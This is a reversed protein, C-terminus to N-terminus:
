IKKHVKKIEQAVFFIRESNKRPEDFTMEDYVGLLKLGAEKLLNKIIQITYAKEYHIEVFRSYLGTKDDKIFFNTYFENIMKEDDYYNELTYASTETTQSFTNKGLINEFKYVTNIDFIYLGKPHLYNDVLKFVQLLEDTDIIYNITDCISLICDVTGYLEFERMDQELYLIDVKSELSKESAKLLMQESCDIGILEYGEKALPITINGTGCGIDAILRPKLNFKEWIKHIYILWEDYPMDEMFTDYVQAFNEYISM